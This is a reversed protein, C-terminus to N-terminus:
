SFIPMCPIKLNSIRTGVNTKQIEFGLDMKPCIQVLFVWLQRTQSFIPVCLTEVINISIGVNSKGTKLELDKKPCIQASFYLTTWKSQFNDCMTYWPNQNKNRSYNESHIALGLDLKPCIEASFTLATQKAQFSACVCM